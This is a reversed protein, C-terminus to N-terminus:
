SANGAASIDAHFMSFHKWNYQSTNAWEVSNNDNTLPSELMM